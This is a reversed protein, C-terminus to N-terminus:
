IDEENSNDTQVEDISNGGFIPTIKEGKSTIDTAQPPNGEAMKWITDKGVRKTFEYKEEDTMDRFRKQWYEKLSQGKPRGKPNGSQGKKFHYPKLQKALQKDTKM